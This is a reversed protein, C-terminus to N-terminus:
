ACFLIILFELKSDNTPITTKIQNVVELNNPLHLINWFSNKSLKEYLDIKGLQHLSWIQRIASLFMLIIVCFPTVMWLSFFLVLHAEMIVLCSWRLNNSYVLMVMASYSRDIIPFCNMKTLYPFSIPSILQLVFSDLKHILISIVAFSSIFKLDDM